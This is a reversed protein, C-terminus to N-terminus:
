YKNGLASQCENVILKMDDLSFVRGEIEYRVQKLPDLESPRGNSLREVLTQMASVTRKSVAEGKFEITIKVAPGAQQVSPNDKQLQSFPHGDLPNRYSSRPPTSFDMHTFRTGHPKHHGPGKVVFITMPGIDGPTKIDENFEITGREYLQFLDESLVKNDCTGGSMLILNVLEGVSFPEGPRISRRIFDELSSFTHATRERPVNFVTNMNIDSPETIQTNFGIIGEEGLELLAEAINDLNDFLARNPILQMLEEVMYYRAPELTKDLVECIRRKLEAKFNYTTQEQNSTDKIEIQEKKM